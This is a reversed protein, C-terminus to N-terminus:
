SSDYSPLRQNTLCLDLLQATLIQHWATQQKKVELLIIFFNLNHASNEEPM